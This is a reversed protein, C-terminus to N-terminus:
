ESKPPISTPAPKAAPHPKYPATKPYGATDLAQSWQSDLFGISWNKGVQITPIQDGGSSKKFADVDEPSSITKETFPIGRKKLFNRAMDCASGCNGSVFLTVPFKAHARRTEFPLSDDNQPASMSHLQETDAASNLPADGYQVRGNHDISRFYTDAIVNSALLLVAISLFLKRM